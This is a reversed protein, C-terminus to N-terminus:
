QSAHKLFHPLAPTMFDFPWLTAIYSMRPYLDQRDECLLFQRMSNLLSDGLGYILIHAIGETSGFKGPALCYHVVKAAEDQQLLM